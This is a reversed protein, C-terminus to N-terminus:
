KRAGKKAVGYGKSSRRTGLREIVVQEKSEQVILEKIFPHVMEVSLKSNHDVITAV